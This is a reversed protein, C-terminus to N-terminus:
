LTYKIHLQIYYKYITRPMLAAYVGMEERPKKEWLILFLHPNKKEMKLIELSKAERVQSPISLEEVRLPDLGRSIDVKVALGSVSLM